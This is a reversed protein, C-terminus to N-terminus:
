ENSVPPFACRFGMFYEAEGAPRTLDYQTFALRQNRLSESRIGSGYLQYAILMLATPKEPSVDREPVYLEDALAGESKCEDAPSSSPM